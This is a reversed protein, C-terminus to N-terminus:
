RNELARMLERSSAYFEPLSMEKLYVLGRTARFLPRPHEHFWERGLCVKIKQYQEVQIKQALESFPGDHEYSPFSADKQSIFSRMFANQMTAFMNLSVPVLYNAESPHFRYWVNRYGWVTIDSRGSKKEYQKLAETMAQLVKYHTDPGSAEPDFAVTVVDPKVQELAAVIPAVDRELTPEQTFIDGTYFGLRLHMVNDCNWGFYGWLCEAEWERTMGKLRQIHPLDKKGPYETDFYHLLEIIRHQIHDLSHENYVEIMNRLLRRAEGENKMTRSKGAVGDLYQWVDRNRMVPNAPDFYGEEHLAAFEPTGLFEVLKGLQERMHQNSVSTFGGTLCAFYHTNSADRIHRVVSALYGLMIDDHHPETHFFRTGSMSAAGKELKGILRERTKATLEEVPESRKKLLQAGFRDAAVDERTLDTLNKRAAVALDVLLAEVGADDVTEQAELAALRREAMGKAAGQTIYFRAMPLKHLSTAPYLVNPSEEVAERVVDAKAEGAAIIIAVAEPDYTITGLGITIVLRNRSIEIGGLDGAAAAQTEYNTPTLRTTSFHDSGRVNFGVHGDPGIGGLFFGVGGLDRIREEYEQCWQDIGELVEKQLREQRTKGQRYRLSLDGTHDPWVDRLTMGQPMGIKACNILMAKDRDLGFGDIYFHNVYHHFSNQQLPDIPYFEDIQVFHLSKMDPRVSPDVGNEELIAQVGGDEWNGLLHKVWKIFHEPTKGTPLSIAGGPHQQAWEIFRMAALKGLAPFNDVVIVPIKEAPPYQARFPSAKLAVQEVRSPTAKRARAM